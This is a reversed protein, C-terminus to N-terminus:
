DSHLRNLENLRLEKHNNDSFSWLAGTKSWQWLGM